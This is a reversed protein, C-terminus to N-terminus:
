LIHEDNMSHYSDSTSVVSGCVTELMNHLICSHVSFM